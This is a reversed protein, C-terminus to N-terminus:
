RFRFYLPKEVYITPVLYDYAVYYVLAAVIVLGALFWAVLIVKLLKGLAPWIWNQLLHLSTSAILGSQRETKTPYLSDSDDM